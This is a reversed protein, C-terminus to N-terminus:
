HKKDLDLGRKDKALKRRKIRSKLLTENENRMRELEEAWFQEM